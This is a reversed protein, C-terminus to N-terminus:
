ANTKGVLVEDYFRKVLGTRLQFQPISEGMFNKLIYEVENFGFLARVFTTGSHRPNIEFLKPDGEKDIRLQFNCAGMPKLCGAIQRVYDDVRCLPGEYYADCTNGEKLDRRLSIVEKVEGELYIAGCTYECGPDGILEQVIPRSICSAASQLEQETKVVSVGRSRAGVAPKVICPFEMDGERYNEFLYTKPAAIDHQVLFQYTEYKDNGIRIVEPDSVIVICNAEDFLMQKAEALIPLEFDVGVFLYALEEMKIIQILQDLWEAETVEAKLIDPLLYNREAWYSGMTNEFYDLGVITVRDKLDSYKLSKIVAQGILSGTGTVGVNIKSM